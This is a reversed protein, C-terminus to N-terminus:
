VSGTATFVNVNAMVLTHMILLGSIASMSLPELKVQAEVCGRYDAAQICMKHIKPAVNDAAAIFSLESIITITAFLKIHSMQYANFM